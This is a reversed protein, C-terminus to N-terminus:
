KILGTGCSDRELELIRRWLIESPRRKRSEWQYIVAKGAAGIKQALQAQSLRRKARLNVVYRDYNEPLAATATLM